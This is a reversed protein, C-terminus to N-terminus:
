NFPIVIKHISKDNPDFNNSITSIEETFNKGTAVEQVILMFNGLGVSIPLTSALDPNRHFNFASSDCGPILSFYTGRPGIWVYYAQQVPDPSSNGNADTSYVYVNFVFPADTISGDLPRINFARHDNVASNSSGKRVEKVMVPIFQELSFLDNVIQSIQSIDNQFRGALMKRTTTERLVSTLVSLESNQYQVQTRSCKSAQAGLAPLIRRQLQTLSDYLDKGPYPRSRAGISDVLASFAAVNGSFLSNLAADPTSAAKYYGQFRELVPKQVPLFRPAVLKSSADVRKEPDSMNISPNLAQLLQVASKSPYIKEQIFQHSLLVYPHIVTDPRHYAGAKDMALHNQYEAQFKQYNVAGSNVKQARLCFSYCCLVLLFTLYKM